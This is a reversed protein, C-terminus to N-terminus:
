AAAAGHRRARGAETSAVTLEVHPPFVLGIPKDNYTDPDPDILNDALLMGITASSTPCRAHHHRLDGSGHFPLGGTDSTSTRRPVFALDPERFKDGAKFTRDFVARTM